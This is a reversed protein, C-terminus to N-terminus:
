NKKEQVDGVHLGLHSGVQTQSLKSLLIGTLTLWTKPHDYSM